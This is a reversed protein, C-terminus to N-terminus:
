EPIEHPLEKWTTGNVLGLERHVQGRPHVLGGKEAYIGHSV